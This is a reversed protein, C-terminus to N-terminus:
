FSYGPFGNPHYPATTTGGTWSKCIRDMLGGSHNSFRLCARMGPAYNWFNNDHGSVKDYMVYYMGFPENGENGRMVGVANRQIFVRWGGDYVYGDAAGLFPVSSSRTGGAPLQIDLEDLSTAYEGNAMYYIEQAKKLGDVVPVYSAFRSKWVVLQYQPLAIAALIGIILVVVLLEILTFGNLRMGDEIQKHCSSKAIYQSM